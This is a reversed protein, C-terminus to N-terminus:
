TNVFLDVRQLRDFVLPTQSNFFSALVNLLPVRGMFDLM